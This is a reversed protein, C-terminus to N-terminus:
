EAVPSLWLAYGGNPLLLGNLTTAATVTAQEVIVSTPTGDRYIRATYSRDPELFDLTIPVARASGDTLIGVFWDDGRRRAVTVYDGIVGNLAQTEDWVTPLAGILDIEPEGNYHVPSDYWFVFRLPSFFVIQAALQHARTVNLSPSYYAFTTDAAGALLRTFPYITHQEASPFYENGRVGEQTLLHPYTRSLGSPRYNDHVDIMLGYGAAKYVADHVFNIGAQSRGDVFGFKIGKVGWAAYLQLILDLQRQLAVQNVYLWVGVQKEKAYALVQTMNIPEIPDTADSAPNNEEAYGLEYWGADFEVYEIGHEAAFDIVQLAGATTLAM